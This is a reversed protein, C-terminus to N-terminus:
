AVVELLESLSQVVPGEWPQHGYGLHGEAAIQVAHM